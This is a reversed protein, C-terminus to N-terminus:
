YSGRKQLISYATGNNEIGLCNTKVGKISKLVTTISVHFVYYFFQQPSPNLQLFYMLFLILNKKLNHVM